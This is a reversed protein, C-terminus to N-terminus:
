RPIAAASITWRSRARRAGEAAAATGSGPRFGRDARRRHNGTGAPGPALGTELLISHVVNVVDGHMFQAPSLNVAIQLPVPWSAAERCAERLIWEGMEVILGSEEALPIFDGPRSSAACRICGARWRRSASSRAPRCRHPRLGGAASLAAVVRREQHRAFPGPAARPPRPDAPGDGARVRRDHRAVEAQRPVVCRRCQCAAVAADAGNHPFVAIGTTVGTRVSKGDIQFERALAEALEAALAM